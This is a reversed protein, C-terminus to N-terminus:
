QPSFVISEPLSFKKSLAVIQINKTEQVAAPRMTSSRSSSSPHGDRTQAHSAKTTTEADADAADREAAKTAATTTDATTTPAKTTTEAEAKAAKAASATVKSTNTVTETSTTIAVSTTTVETMTTTHAETTTRTTTTAKKACLLHRSSEASSVKSEPSDNLWLTATLDEPNRYYYCGRPREKSSTREVKTDALALQRAAEECAADDIISDLGVDECTGETIKQIGRKRSRCIDPAATAEHNTTRGRAPDEEMVKCIPLRVIKQKFASTEAGNGKSTPNVNLFLMSTHDGHNQCYYCGAPREHLCTLAARREGLMLEKAAVECTAQDSINHMGLDECSGSQHALRFRTSAKRVLYDGSKWQSEGAFTVATVVQCRKCFPTRGHRGKGLLGSNYYFKDNFLFCGWPDDNTEVAHPNHLVGGFYYPMSRCEAETLAATGEPCTSDGEQAPGYECPVRPAVTTTKTDADAIPLAAIFSANPWAEADDEEETSSRSLFRLRDDM